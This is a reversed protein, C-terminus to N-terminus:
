RPLNLRKLLASADVHPDFELAKMMQGLWELRKAKGDPVVLPRKTETRKPYGGVQEQSDIIKGTGNIVSEVIRRDIEDREAPRFGAGSLVAILNRRLDPRPGGAASEGESLRTVGEDLEKLERGTADHVFNFNALVSAGPDVARVLVKGTTDGGGIAINGRVVARVGDLMELNGKSGVGIAASGWNYIVNNVVSGTVGGKLRPNRERNHAFLNGDITVNRIGDHILLGMSHAGKAHTSNLLAEGMLNNRFAVDHSTADVGAASRVDRPGSASMNEDVAWTASCNQILVDHVPVSRRVITIGDPEWPDDPKPRGDGPRVALHRVIVHDTEIILSGRILTMGPAPATEGAVFVQPEEIRLSVGKLDIVGGVEFVVLRPGKQALAARLSGPGESLLNTVKAVKADGIPFLDVEKARPSQFSELPRVM